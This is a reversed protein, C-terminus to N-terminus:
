KFYKQLVIEKLKDVHNLEPNDIVMEFLENLIRGIERGETIGLNILYDGNIAMDKMSLCDAREKIQRYLSKINEIKTLRDAMFEPNQAKIDAEKVKLLDLFIDDGLSSIARRVAKCTTEIVRDHEKILKGARKIFASPFKLRNFINMALHLSKESHGYFHDVGNEDVSKSLPKGIDHLLMVWRLMSEPPINEIAHLSHVAVNYIHYPNNQITYFCIEFEPLIHQLLHTDRLLIFRIPHESVLIRTLEERVRESSVKEILHSNKRISDLVNDEVKFDLEASFRVARLMRLADENFRQDPDGVTKIIKGKIDRVGNFPDVIGRRPSYAVANMTFDRRSLDETLSSIFGVSAPRRNDSYVGDVRYTTVEVKTDGWLVTVTGHKIGTDITKDFLKKIEDPKAITTVDWDKPEKGMIMDRTCGGVLYAEYGADELKNIVSCVQFPLFKLIEDKLRDKLKNM